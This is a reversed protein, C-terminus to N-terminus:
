KANAIVYEVYIRGINKGTAKEMGVFGPIHNVELIYREGSDTILLDVGAVEVDVAKAASLALEKDKEDLEFVEVSGGLSFNARFEGGRPIRRMCFINKGIILVRLDYKYPIFKQLMFNKAESEGKELKELFVSLDIENDFKYVGAGKGMRTFKCIVPYGIKLALPLFKSFSHLHFSDPVPLGSQSLKILDAIKNISYKHILFNNDFVKVGQRRLIEIYSSIIKISRFVGRIVIIDPKTDIFQPVFLNNQIIEYEFEKLDILKFQHGLAAIEEEIRKNEALEKETTILFVKM